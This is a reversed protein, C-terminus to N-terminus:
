APDLRTTVLGVQGAAAAQQRDATIFQQCGVSKASQIHLADAARLPLQTNSQLLAITQCCIRDTLPDVFFVTECDTEIGAQLRAADGIDLVGRMESRRIASIAEAIVLRSIHVESADTLMADLADGGTEPLYRKLFASTDLCVIM